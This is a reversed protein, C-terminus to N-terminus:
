ESIVEFFKVEVKPLKKNLRDLIENSIDLTQSFHLTQTVPLILDLNKEKAVEAIIITLEDNVKKLANNSAQKLIAEKKLAEKQLVAVRELFQKYETNFATESLLKKRGELRTEEEKLGVENKNIETQYKTQQIKIKAKINQMALSEKQVREVDVVAINQAQANAVFAFFILFLIPTFLNKKM